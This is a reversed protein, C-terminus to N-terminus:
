GDPSIAKRINYNEYVPARMPRGAADKGPTMRGYKELKPCIKEDFSKVGSPVVLRCQEVRGDEKVWFLLSFRLKTSFAPMDVYSLPFGQPKVAMSKVVADDIGLSRHLDRKCKALEKLASQFRPLRLDFDGRSGTKLRLREGVKGLGHQGYDLRFVRLAGNGSSYLNFHATAPEAAEDIYLTAEGADNRSGPEAHVITLLIGPELPEVTLALAYPDGASVMPMFLQCSLDSYKVIWPGTPTLNTPQALPAPGIAAISLLVVFASGLLSTM